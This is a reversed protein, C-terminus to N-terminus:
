RQNSFKEMLDLIRRATALAMDSTACDKANIRELKAGEDLLMKTRIHADSPTETHVTDGDIEVVMLIGNKIVIFDPEIRRYKEGGRIFVPLPAFSVGLSKLAKYFNVEPQSRFLLGDHERSAINDSRVRGQNTVSNGTLWTIAKDRWEPDAILETTVIVKELSHNDYPRFLATGEQRIAEEVAGRQEATFQNYVRRDVHLIVNWTYTGGNWNDYDSIKPTAKSHALMAVARTNGGHALISALSNIFAEVPMPFAEANFKNEEPSRNRMRNKENSFQRPFGGFDIQSTSTRVHLSILDTPNSLYPFFHVFIISQYLPPTRRMAIGSRLFGRRLSPFALRSDLGFGVTAVERRLGNARDDRPTELGERPPPLAPHPRSSASSMCAVDFKQGFKSRRTRV